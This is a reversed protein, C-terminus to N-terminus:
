SSRKYRYYRETSIDKDRCAQTVTTQSKAIIADVQKVIKALEQKRAKINLERVKRAKIIM